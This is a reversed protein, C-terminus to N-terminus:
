MAEVTVGFTEAERMKADTTILPADLAEALVVYSAGYVTFNGRLCLMQHLLGSMDRRDLTLEVFDDVAETARDETLKRGLCLGRLASADDYDILTPVVLEDDSLRALLTPKVPTGVLLEVIASSDVVIM